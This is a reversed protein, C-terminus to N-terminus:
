EPEFTFDARAAAGESVTVERTQTGFKEHWADLTYKGPPLEKIEFSGEDGTVSFYPHPLVGAYARMWPHVDCKVPVMVEPESFKKTFKIGKMPMGLNFRKQKEPMAHVNHLTSDSNMIEVPQNVQVGFVRPNYMCGKQDLKVPGAPAEFTKGELGEKVYVFVNKLTQGPGLQVEPNKVAEGYQGACTPDTQMNIPESEPVAGSFTVKGTISAAAAEVSFVLSLALPLLFLHRKM